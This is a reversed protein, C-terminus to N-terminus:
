WFCCNTNQIDRSIDRRKLRFVSKNQDETHGCEMIRDCFANWFAAAAAAMAAAADAAAAEEGDDAM